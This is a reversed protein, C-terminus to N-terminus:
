WNPFPDRYGSNPLQVKKYFLYGRIGAPFLVVIVQLGAGLVAVMRGLSDWPFLVYSIFCSLWINFYVRCAIYMYLLVPTREHLCQQLPFYILVVCESHTNTAKSIWCAIRM